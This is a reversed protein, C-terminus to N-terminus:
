EPFNWKFDNKKKQLFFAQSNQDDIYNYTTVDLYNYAIVKVTWRSVQSNEKFVDNIGPIYQCQSIKHAILCKNILLFNLIM